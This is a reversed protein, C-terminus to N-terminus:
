AQLSLGTLAPELTEGGTKARERRKRRRTCDVAVAGAVGIGALMITSPEPIAQVEVMGTSAPGNATWSAFTNAQRRGGIAAYGSANAVAPPNSATEWQFSDSGAASLVVWYNTSPSMQYSGTFTFTQSSLTNNITPGTLTALPADPISTGSLLTSSFLRVIPNATPSVSKLSLKVSTLDLFSSDTGTTFGTAYINSGSTMNLTFGAPDNFDSSFVTGAKATSIAVLLAVLAFGVATLLSYQSSMPRISM